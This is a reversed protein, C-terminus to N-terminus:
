CNFASLGSGGDPAAAIILSTFSEEQHGVTALAFPLILVHFMHVICRMCFMACREVAKISGQWLLRRGSKLLKWACFFTNWVRATCRYLLSLQAHVYPGDPCRAPFLLINGSSCELTSRLTAICMDYPKWFAEKLCNPISLGGMEHTEPLRFWRDSSVHLCSGVPRGDRLSHSRRASSVGLSIRGLIRSSGWPSREQCRAADPMM